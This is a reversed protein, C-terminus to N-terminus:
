AAGKELLAEAAAIAIADARDAADGSLAHTALLEHLAARLARNEDRLRKNDDVRAALTETTM